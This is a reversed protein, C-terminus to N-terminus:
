NENEVGRVMKKKLKDQTLSWLNLLMQGPKDVQLLSLALSDSMEGVLSDLTLREM